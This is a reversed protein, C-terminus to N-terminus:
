SGARVKKLAARTKGVGVEVITSVFEGLAGAFQKAQERSEFDVFLSSRRDSLYVGHAADYITGTVRYSILPSRKLRAAADLVDDPSLKTVPRAM